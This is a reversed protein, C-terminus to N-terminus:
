GRVRVVVARSSGAVNASDGGFSGWIRYLGKNTLKLHKTYRGHVPRVRYGAVRKKGLLVVVTVLKKSPLITGSLKTSSGQRIRTASLSAEM